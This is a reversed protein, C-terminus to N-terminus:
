DIFECDYQRCIERVEPNDTSVIFIKNIKHCVNGLSGISKVVAKYDKKITVLVVDIAIDDFEKPNFKFDVRFLQKIKYWFYAPLFWPQSLRQKIGFLNM